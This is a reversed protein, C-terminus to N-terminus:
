FVGLFGLGGMVLILLLCIVVLLKKKFVEIINKSNM